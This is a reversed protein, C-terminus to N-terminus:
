LEAEATYQIEYFNADNAGSVTFYRNGLVTIGAATCAKITGTAFERASSLTGGGWFTFTPITYMEVPFTVGTFYAGDCFLQASGVLTGNGPPINHGYSKCYYRQAMRLEVPRPRARWPSAAVGLECQPRKFTTSSAVSLNITVNGTDGAAMALTVSRRGSGATIVGSQPSGPLGVSTATVTISGSPDEVSVTISKSALSSLGAFPAANSFGIEIVQEISGSALTIISTARTIDAGGSGAKWRDYGYVGASLAGGAFVRQNIALDSNILLNESGSPNSYAEVTGLKTQEADTFANTDANSEYLTKVESASLDATANAEIGALKAKEADTFANTDANSEYQTKIVSPSNVGVLKSWFGVGGTQDDPAVDGTIAQANYFYDLGEDEVYRREKDILTAQAIATLEALNQVATGFFQPTILDLKDKEEQTIAFYGSDELITLMQTATLPSLWDSFGQFDVTVRMVTTGNSLNTAIQTLRNRNNAGTTTEIVEVIHEGSSLGTSTPDKVFYVGATRLNDLRYSDALRTLTAM